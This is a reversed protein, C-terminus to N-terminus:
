QQEKMGTTPSETEVHEDPAPSVPRTGALDAFTIPQAIPRKSTTTLPRHAATIDRSEPETACVAALACMRGQCWGMGVRSVGKLGRPDRAGLSATANKVESWPVEECRCVVTQPTLWGAWHAPIPHATHMAKAFTQHRRRRARVARMAPVARGLVDSAAAAGAVTGQAVASTAGAVGTIEGALYLGPLDSRQDGDVTGVLSGDVDVRTSAGVQTLLETQPTFGWGLGLVDVDSIVELSDPRPHGDRGLRAVSVSQVRASGHVEVVASGTRVSVKHRALLAAYGAGEIVKDPVLAGLAGRPVWASLRSSEVVAAVNAGARLVSAAASLLFPGTGAIVVRQGPSVGQTKIFAQVGGAAMVGPLTWGPVPLQRDYAGPCLVLREAHIQIAGGDGGQQAALEPTAGAHILYGEGDSRTVSWVQTGSRYEILGHSEFREVNSVLKRYTSWGHHLGAPIQDKLAPDANRWYQGGTRPASDLLLVRVGSGAASVAAALGAPGAGIVVLPRRVLAAAATVETM